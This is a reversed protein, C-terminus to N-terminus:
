GRVVRGNRLVFSLRVVQGFAGTRAPRGNVVLRVAGANGLIIQLTRRAVLNPSGGGPVTGNLVVRGDATAQIWTPVSVHLVASIRRVAHGASPGPASPAASSAPAGAPPGAPTALTPRHSSARIVGLAILTVASAVVLARFLWKRKTPGGLPLLDVVPESEDEAVPSSSVISDEALGLYRAYERLFYRRYPAPPLRDIGMRGEFAELYDRRIFTDRAVQDLSLGREQRAHVLLSAVDVGNTFPPHDQADVPGPVAVAEVDTTEAQQGRRLFPHLM